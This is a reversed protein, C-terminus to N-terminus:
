EDKLFKDLVKAINAKYNIADRKGWVLPSSADPSYFKLFAYKTCPPIFASDADVEQSPKIEGNEYTPVLIKKARDKGILIRRKAPFIANGYGKNTHEDLLVYNWILNKESDKLDWQRRSGSFEIHGAPENMAHNRQFKKTKQANKVSAM